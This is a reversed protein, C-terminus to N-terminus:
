GPGLRRRRPEVCAVSGAVTGFLGPQDALVAIDSICQAGDAVAVALDVLVWGPDHAARPRALRVLAASVEATLRTGDALDALM